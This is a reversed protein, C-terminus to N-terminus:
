NTKNAEEEEEQGQFALVTIEEKKCSYVAQEWDVEEDVISAQKVFIYQCSVFNREKKREFLQKFIEWPKRLFYLWMSQKQTPIFNFYVNTIRFMSYAQLYAPVFTLM